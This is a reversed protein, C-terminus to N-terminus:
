LTVWAASGSATNSTPVNLLATSRSPSSAFVVCAGPSYNELTFNTIVFVAFYFSKKHRVQVYSPSLCNKNVFVASIGVFYWVFNHVAWSLLFDGVTACFNASDARSHLKKPNSSFNDFSLLGPRFSLACMIRPDSMRIMYLIHPWRYIFHRIKFTLTM